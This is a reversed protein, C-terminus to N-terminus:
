DSRSSLFWQHSRDRSVCHRKTHTIGRWVFIDTSWFVVPPQPSWSKKTFLNSLKTALYYHQASPLFWLCPCARFFIHWFDFSWPLLHLSFVPLSKWRFIFWQHHYHCKEMFRLLKIENQNLTTIHFICYLCLPSDNDFPLNSLAESIHLLFKDAKDLM